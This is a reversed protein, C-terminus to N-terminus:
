YRDDNRTICQLSNINLSPLTVTQIRTRTATYAFPVQEAGEDDEAEWGEEQLWLPYAYNYEEDDLDEVDNDTYQVTYLGHKQADLHYATIRGQFIGDPGFDRCVFEGIANVGFKQALKESVLVSPQPMPSRVPSWRLVGGHTAIEIAERENLIPIGLSEVARFPDGSYGLPIEVPQAKAVPPITFNNEVPQAEAAVAITFDAVHVIDTSNVPVYVWNVRKVRKKRIKQATVSAPEMSTDEFLIASAPVERGQLSSSQQQLLSVIPTDDEDPVFFSSMYFYVCGLVVPCSWTLDFLAGYFGDDNKNTKNARMTCSLWAETALSRTTATCLLLCCVVCHPVV